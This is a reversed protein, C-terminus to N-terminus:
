QCGSVLFSIFNLTAFKLNIAHISNFVNIAATVCTYLIMPVPMGYSIHVYNYVYMKKFAAHQSTSTTQKGKIKPAVHQMSYFEIGIRHLVPLM